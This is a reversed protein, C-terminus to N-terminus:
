KDNNKSGQTILCSNMVRLAEELTVGPPLILQTPIKPSGDLIKKARKKLIDEAISKM